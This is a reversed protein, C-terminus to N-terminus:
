LATIAALGLLNTKLWKIVYIVQSSKEKDSLKKKFCGLVELAPPSPGFLKKGPTSLIPARLQQYTEKSVATVEASSDIKYIHHDTRM